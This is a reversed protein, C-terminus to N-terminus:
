AYIDDMLIDPSPEKSSKGFEVAEDVQAAVERDIQDAEAESIVGNDILYSRFQRIPDKPQWEDVEAKDRYNLPDGVHHGLMRYTTSVLFTPGEGSRAREVAESAAKYVALVDMGDVNVGPFGYAVARVSPDPVSTFHDARASMAYQNNECVFVVPLKWIASLNCAEHLVGQNLAGDGFFCISVRGNGLLKASLAAGTAIGM